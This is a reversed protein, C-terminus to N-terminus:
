EEEGVFRKFIPCNLSKTGSMNTSEGFTDIEIKRGIYKDKNNWIENRQYDTFGSGVGVKTGNYDVVLAGLTDENKGSGEVMGTVELVIEDVFKLKMLAKSRKVEYPGDVSNLMVGEGKRAFIGNLVPTVDDISKALGLIPVPKIVHLNEDIGFAIILQKYDEPRLNKLSEDRLTAALRIKRDLAKIPSRGTFFDEVPIMDFINFGLGSKSGGSNAISSTAQRCAINDVFNGIAILEGDYVFNNPLYKAEKVIETMGFDEHGSRSYARIVGDKKVLIRRIGDLKETMICPWKPNSVNAYLTGLMCGVVPIFDEGYVANLTKTAVGMKLNQTVLAIALFTAGPYNYYSDVKLIWKAAANVYADAGTNNKTLYTIVKEPSAPEETVETISVREMAKKLKAEGIGCKNYPDYIFKLIAKFTDNTSNNLLVQQKALSGSTGLIQEVIKAVEIM